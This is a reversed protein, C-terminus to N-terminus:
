NLSEPINTDVQEDCHTKRRHVIRRLIIEKHQFHWYEM